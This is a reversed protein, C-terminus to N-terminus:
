HAGLIPSVKYKHTFTHAHTHTYTHGRTRVWYPNEAAAAFPGDANPHTKEAGPHAQAGHTSGHTFYNDRMVTAGRVNGDVDQSIVCVCM